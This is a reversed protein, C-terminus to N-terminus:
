LIYSIPGLNLKSVVDYERLDNIESDLEITDIGTQLLRKKLGRIINNQYDATIDAESERGRRLIRRKMEEISCTLFIISDAQKVQRIAEQYVYNYANWEHSSLNNKAFVWDLELSFDCLIPKKKLMSIKILHVHYLLCYLETEFAYYKPDSYFDALHGILSFDEFLLTTNSNFAKISSVFSSKGAGIGGCLEIRM